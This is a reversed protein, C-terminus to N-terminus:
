SGLILLSLMIFKRKVCLWPPLNNIIMLIPWCTHKNSLSSHPNIGDVSIAFRLNRPKSAFNSWKHDVLKWSPSYSPHHMKGNFERKEAHWILDKM